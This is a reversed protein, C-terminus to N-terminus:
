KQKPYHVIGFENNASAKTNLIPKMENLLNLVKKLSLIRKIRNAWDSNNFINLAYLHILFSIIDSVQVFFAEESDKPLPDEILKNIKYSYSTGPYIKSPINQYRQAKRTIKKMKGVRGEDTIILFLENEGYKKDLDYQIRTINYTLAKELVDYEDNFINKKNICVNISKINLRTILEIFKEFINLRTNKNFNYNRYPHKNTLFDKTHFEEYVKLGYKDKLHKKFDLMQNYNNRWNQAEMYISTMVFLESSYKPYGDDGTEDFYAINM